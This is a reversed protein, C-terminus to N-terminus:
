PKASAPAVTPAPTTAPAPTSAPAPTVPAAAPAVPAAKSKSPSKAKPTAIPAPLKGSKQIEDFLNKSDNEIADMASVWQKELNDVFSIMKQFRAGVSPDMKGVLNKITTSDQVKGEALEKLSYFTSNFSDRVVQNQAKQSKSHPDQGFFNKVNNAIDGWMGAEKVFDEADSAIKITNFEDLGAEGKDLKEAFVLFEEATSGHGAIDLDRSISALKTILDKKNMSSSRKLVQYRPDIGKNAKFRSEFQLGNSSYEEVLSLINGIEKRINKLSISDEALRIFDESNPLNKIKNRVLNQADIDLNSWSAVKLSNIINLINKVKENM